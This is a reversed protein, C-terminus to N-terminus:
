LIMGLVIYFVRALIAVYFMVFKNLKNPSSMDFLLYYLVRKKLFAGLWNGQIHGGDTWWQGFLAIHFPSPYESHVTCQRANKTTTTLVNHVTRCRCVIVVGSVSKGRVFAGSCKTCVWKLKLFNAQSKEWQAQIAGNQARILRSSKRMKIESAIFLYPVL